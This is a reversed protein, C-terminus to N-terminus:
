KIIGGGLVYDGDYLVVSQGPTIARQPEDFVVTVTDGNLSVTAPQEEHRYRIRAKCRFMDACPEVIWNFDCAELTTSFLSANDCLTVTNDKQNKASVYMPQGLAIGLGKRQGVTYNIIGQHEGLVAGNKDVFNGKPYTKNTVENIVKIYDGDPVFCIDQSDRLKANVLNLSEAIERIKPKRYEGLPFIVRKLQEPSLSYLFYSQDKKPDDAKKLYAKGDRREIKAYHGTVLYDIGKENCIDLLKGFKLKKNCIVCPNPTLGNEYATVFEDIVESKFYDKLDAVSFPVGAATAVAEADAVNQEDGKLLHMTIGECEYGQEIMLNLSVASDVGGSLAILAKKNM